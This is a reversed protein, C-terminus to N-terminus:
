GFVKLYSIEMFSCRLIGYNFFIVFNPSQSGSWKVAMFWFKASSWKMSVPKNCGVKWVPKFHKALHSRVWRMSPFFFSYAQSFCALWGMSLRVDLKGGEWVGESSGNKIKKMLKYYFSLFLHYIVTVGIRKWRKDERRRKMAVYFLLRRKKWQSFFYYYYYILLFYIFVFKM